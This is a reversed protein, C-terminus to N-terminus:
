FVQYCREGWVMGGDGDWKADWMRWGDAVDLEGVTLAMAIKFELM